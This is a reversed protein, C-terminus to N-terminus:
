KFLQFDFARCADHMIKRKLLRVIGKEKIYNLESTTKGIENELFLIKTM